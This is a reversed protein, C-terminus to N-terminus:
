SHRADLKRELLLCMVAMNIAYYLSTGLALGVLGLWVFALSKVVLGFGFGIVSIMMPTRVDGIAYFAAATISGAAGVFLYGTLLMCMLWISEAAAPGIHLTSRLLVGWLPHLCLLSLPITASVLGVRLVCRRYQDRLAVLDGREALRALQPVVPVCIARDLVTAFAGIATQALGFLSVAGVPAQSTWFRDVLPGSKYISGVAIQPRLQRWVESCRWGSMLSPIPRDALWFTIGYALAARAFATWAAAEVGYRPVLVAVAGIAGLSVLLSAIETGLFRDRARQATALLAVHGGFFMAGLLPPVLTATMARQEFGFGPFLLGIWLRRSALMVGAVGGFLLLVQGQQTCLASRWKEPHLNLIALRPQWLNQLASSLVVLVVLTASQAAILADTHGGIGLTAVVVLQVVVSAALQSAAIAGLSLHLKL